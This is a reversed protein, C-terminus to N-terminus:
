KELLIGKPVYWKTLDYELGAKEMKIDRLTERGTQDKEMLYFKRQLASNGLPVYLFTYPQDEAMLEHIRWYIQKRKEVDYERRGEEWLFDVEPNKYSIFNFGKEIQSSHWIQYDDPDPSLGWGLICADFAKANIFNKLFVSWEYLEFKVDIGVERLQRQVLVGVDKRIENGSNTILRFLFPKGDKDLIGDGDTDKWGAEALLQRAKQPDYPIPKVKPNAYWLHNPFPGTAVTGLGYLVYQVIEERNTAYTLAQRVRKDQFLPNKLNYGIYTYSLTPQSYMKLFPVEKMRRLQHPFVSYYDVGQTLLEMESLSPEPIVRYIIRDLNPRGEFYKPNAEVVIKEDSVWEIFRFPGTGVPRRNFQTTNIDEKELLHKPIIGMGWTALGPAFPQKYTVRFTYPDLVDATKVLEYDSRRVTNTKEDMIKDYTFKVDEATFEKGDHWLVGKRLYFTIVPESGKEVKWSEALVGVFGQLDRDYKILGNFVFSNIESSASDQSLIPNLFSADGISSIVLQNVKQPPRSGVFVINIGLLILFLIPSIFLVTKIRLLPKREFLTKSSIITLFKDM